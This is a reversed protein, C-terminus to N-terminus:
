CLSFTGPVPFADPGFRIIERETEREIEKTQLYSTSPIPMKLTTQILAINIGNIFIANIEM